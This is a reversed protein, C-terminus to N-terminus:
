PRDALYADVADRLREIGSVVREPPVSTYCLRAFSSAYAGGFADGPALLVGRDVARELIAYLPREGGREEIAPGFDLFLYTAGEAVFTRLPAGALAAVSADRAVRYVDRAARPFADDALAAVAARQMALAVNFATHTSVRRAAAIVPEPATIFGVRLGALAHSKSLSHLTVTRERMGPLAAISPAAAAGDFVVDAYVEDAFVWLDHERAFAAIRELEASSLVKGDPNNPSIFYVAKTRPGVAASLLAAPDLSPDAYLRQTLAAEVPVAGCATFVGPALPWYPAAVIVEDGPDLVARAACFLAHTGGNGVLLEAVPDVELGRRALVKAMAERLPALGATPGYRHLAADDADFGGLARRAAEPPPVHTDGIHLPILEEGRAALRDIRAQLEAFVAPRIRRAADSLARKTM